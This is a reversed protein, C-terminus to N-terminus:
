SRRDLNTSCQVTLNSHITPALKTQVRSYQRYQVTSDFYRSPIIINPISCIYIFGEVEVEENVLSSQQVRVDHGVGTARIGEEGSVTLDIGSLRIREGKAFKWNRKGFGRSNAEAWISGILGVRGAINLSGDKV